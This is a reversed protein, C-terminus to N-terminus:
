QLSDLSGAAGALAEGFADTIREMSAEFEDAATQLADTWSSMLNEQAERTSEEITEITELWKEKDEETTANAYAARAEALARENAELISRAAAVSNTANNVSAKGLSEMMEDAIGLTDKGVIDIIDKYSSLLSNFFDFKEASKDLEENMKEFAEVVKEFVTNRMELLAENTELLGDRYELLLDMQAETFTLGDLASSNGAMFAAIQEESAGVETLIDRIGKTYTESKNLYSETQEDLLALSKAIDDIDDDLKGLQYELFALADDEIKLDFEIAIEIKELRM